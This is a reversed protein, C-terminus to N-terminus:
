PGSDKWFLKSISFMFEVLCVATGSWQHESNKATIILWVKFLRQLIVSWGFHDCISFFLANDSSLFCRHHALSFCSKWPLSESFMWTQETKTLYTLYSYCYTEVLTHHFCLELGKDSLIGYSQQKEFKLIPLKIASYVSCVWTKFDQVSLVLHKYVDKPKPFIHQDNEMM